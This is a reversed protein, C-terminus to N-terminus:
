LTGPPKKRRSTGAVLGRLQSTGWFLYYRVIAIRLPPYLSHVPKTGEKLRSFIEMITYFLRSKQVDCSGV